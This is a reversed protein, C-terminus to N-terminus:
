HGLRQVTHHTGPGAGGGALKIEILVKQGWGTDMYKYILAEEPRVLKVCTIQVDKSKKKGLSM